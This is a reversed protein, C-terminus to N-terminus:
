ASGCQDGDLFTRFDTDYDSGVSDEIFAEADYEAADCAISNGAASRWRRVLHQGDAYRYGMPVSWERGM